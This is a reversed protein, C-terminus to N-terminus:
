RAPLRYKQNSAFPPMRSLTRATSVVVSREKKTVASRELRTQLTTKDAALQPEEVLAVVVSAGTSTSAGFVPVSAAVLAGTALGTAGSTTPGNATVFDVAVMEPPLKTTYEGVIEARLTGNTIM